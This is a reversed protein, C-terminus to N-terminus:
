WNVVLKKALYWNVVIKKALQWNVTLGMLVRMITHLYWDDTFLKARISDSQVNLSPKLDKIYLMEYILCELKNRCKRLVSFNDTITLHEIEHQQKIHKGTSATSRTHENVRQHQHRNTFGVYDM